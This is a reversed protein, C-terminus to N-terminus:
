PQVEQSPKRQDVPLGTKERAQRSLEDILMDLKEELEEAKSLLSLAKERDGEEYADVGEGVIRHFERHAAELEQFAPFAAFTKKGEEQLWRGFECSSADVKEFIDMMDGEVAIRARELYFRHVGKFGKMYHYELLKFNENIRDRLTLSKKELDETVRLFGQSLRNIRDEVEDMDKLSSETSEAMSMSMDLHSFLDDLSSTIGEISEVVSNVKRIQDDVKSVVRETAEEMTKAVETIESAAEEQKRSLEMMSETLGKLHEGREILEEGSGKLSDMIDVIKEVREKINEVRRTIQASVEAQEVTANTIQTIFNKSENSAEVISDMASTTEDALKVSEEVKEIGERMDENAKEVESQINKILEAIEKTSQASREALKRVEDAVVAFGKGHEGARAAEIAANLALLNTQESIESIVDTINGIDQAAKLLGTMTKGLGEIRDKIGEISEVLVGLKEKGNLAREVVEDGVKEAEKANNAVEEISASQQNIASSVEEVASSIEDVAQATEQIKELVMNGAERVSESALDVETVGSAFSSMDSVLRNLLELVNKVKGVTDRVIESTEKSASQMEGSSEKINAAMDKIDTARQTSDKISNILTETNNKITESIRRSLEVVKSLAKSYYNALSSQRQFDHSTEYFEGVLEDLKEVMENIRRLVYGLEDNSSIEVKATLDGESVMSIARSATDIEKTINRAVLIYILVLIIGVVVSIQQIYRMRIVKKDAAKQMLFVAKNMESLLKVNNELVYNLKSADQTALFSEVSEKFPKWLKAVVDLQRKVDEERAPPIYAFKTMKLDLPAKGGFRLAKLTTDFVKVTNKVQDASIIDMYNMLIEKTMKQTLMRQRGALNIVLADAKQRRLTFESFAFVLVILTLFLFGPILLKKKISM